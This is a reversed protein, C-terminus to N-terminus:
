EGGCSKGVEKEIRLMEGEGSKGGEGCNHKQEQKETGNPAPPRQLRKFSGFFLVFRWFCFWVTESKANQTYVRNVLMLKENVLRHKENVLRHKENVLMLKENVLMLKKNVLRHKENVLRHKKNVLMLKENVLMLKENVLM